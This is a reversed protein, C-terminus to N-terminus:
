LPEIGKMGDDCDHSSDVKLMKMGKMFVCLFNNYCHKLANLFIEGKTTTEICAKTIKSRSLIIIKCKLVKRCIVFLITNTTQFKKEILKADFTPRLHILYRPHM